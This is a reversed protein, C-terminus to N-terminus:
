QAFQESPAEDRQVNASHFSLHTQKIPATHISLNVCREALPRLHSEEPRSVMFCEIGKFVLPVTKAM